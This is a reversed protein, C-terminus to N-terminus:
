CYCRGRQRYSSIPSCPKTTWASPSPPKSSPSTSATPPTTPPPHPYHPTLPPPLLPNNPANPPPPSPASSPPHPPSPAHPPPTPTKTPHSIWQPSPPTQLIPLQTPTSISILHICPLATAAPPYPLPWARFLTPGGRPIPASAPIPLAPTPVDHRCQLINNNQLSAHGAM